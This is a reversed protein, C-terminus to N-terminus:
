ISFDFSKETLHKGPHDAHNLSYKEANMINDIMDINCANSTASICAMVSCECDTLSPQLYEINYM